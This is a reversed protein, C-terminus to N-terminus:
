ALISPHQARRAERAGKKGERAGKKGEGKGKKGGQHGLIIDTTTHINWASSDISM